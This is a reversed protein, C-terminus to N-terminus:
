GFTHEIKHGYTGIDTSGPKDAGHRYPPSLSSATIPSHSRACAPPTSAPTTRRFASDHTPQQDPTNTPAAVTTHDTSYKAPHPWGATACAATTVADGPTPPAVTAGTSAAVPAASASPSDTGPKHRHDLLEGRAQRHRHGALHPLRHLLHQGVQGATHVRWGAGSRRCRPGHGGPDSPLRGASSSRARGFRRSAGAGSDRRTRTPCSRAACRVM